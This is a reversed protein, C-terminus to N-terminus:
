GGLGRNVFDAGRLNNVQTGPEWSQRYFTETVGSALNFLDEAYPHGTKRLREYDGMTIPAVKNIALASEKRFSISPIGKDQLHRAVRCSASWDFKHNSADAHPTLVNDKMYHGGQSYFTGINDATFKAGHSYLFGGLTQSEATWVLSLRKNKDLAESFEENFHRLRGRDGTARLAVDYEFPNTRNIHIKGTEPHPVREKEGYAVVVDEHGLSDMGARLFQARRMAKLEERETASLPVSRDPDFALAASAGVLDIVGLKHQVSSVLVGTADDADHIIDTHLWLRPTETERKQVIESVQCLVALENQSFEVITQKGPVTLSRIDYSDQVQSAKFTQASHSM